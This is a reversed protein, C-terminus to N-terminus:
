RTLSASENCNECRFWPAGCCRESTKKREAAPEEWATGDREEKQHRAPRRAALLERSEIALHRGERIRADGDDANAVLGAGLAGVRVDLEDDVLIVCDACLDADLLVEETRVSRLRAGASERGCGGARTCVGAAFGRKDPRRPPRSVYTTSAEPVITLTCLLWNSGFECMEVDSSAM